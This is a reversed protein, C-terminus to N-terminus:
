RGRPPQDLSAAPFRRSSQGQVFPLSVSLGDGAKELQVLGDRELHTLLGRFWDGDTMPDFGESVNRGLENLSIRIGPPLGRLKEVIRGRYYRTSGAFPAQKPSHPVSSKALGRTAGSQLLPAAQCHARLPCLKCRPKAVTCLTAGIDMLAQHWSSSNITPLWAQGLAELEQKSPPEVGHGVRSLVRYINTDMVPVTAGFAFCAVASATYPGIGPLSGLGAVTQPLHGDMEMVVREALTHLRVARSNYGLPAWLRIVDGPSASALAQLTPFAGLFELYKPVVRDVQTQQLMVESVLIAYPDNTRRWPLDRGNTAYWTALDTQLLRPDQIATKPGM